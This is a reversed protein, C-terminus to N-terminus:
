FLIELRQSVSTRFAISHREADVTWDSVPLGDASIAAPTMPAAAHITWAVTEYPTIYSGQSRVTIILGQGTPRCVFRSVKYEGRRYDFGEGADEYLVSQGEAVFLRLELQSLTKAQDTHQILPWHPLVTGAKVFLPLYDLPADITITQGGQYFEGSWYNVWQQGQPLYLDRATQGAELIPAVLLSDGMMFQDDLAHAQPDDQFDLLMPRIIPAGTQSAQWFATYLAPLLRYRLEIAQRAIAEVQPGFSWPEQAPTGAATHIRYLPFLAAAQMWRAFLEASPVGFFGGIDPGVFPVGSLGLNLAMSLSLRLHDWNSENDGTWVSAYRQVGTYGARSLVFPRQKPRLASIGEQSARAMQMGYVNHIQAHDAGRGEYSHSVANPITGDGPGFVAPENMDNWFGSVGAELLVRYQEGWWIRAAPDTFDPFYCDGPWVPGRFVKGDPYKLFVDRRLGKEAIDNLRDAKLGPDIISVLRFGDQRLQKSMDAPDSFHSKHWTFGSKGQMYDIDLHIVDGPIQRERFQRAIEQVMQRTKYGWRSQHLGLSWLPPLPMHGSLDALRALVDKVAPGNIFYARLEGGAATLTYCNPQGHGLDFFSRHTTDLLLGFARNQHLAIFWPHGQYLPSQGRQYRGGPDTHWLEFLHGRLNLPYAQEGLGFVPAGSPLSRRLGVWNNQWGFGGGDMNLPQERVDLFDIQANQKHIRVTLAGTKFLLVEEQEILEVQHSPWDSDTKEISYSFPSKFVGQENLRVRVIHPSLATLQLCAAQCRVTLTTKKQQWSQVSGPQRLSEFPPPAPRPRNFTRIAQWWLRPGGRPKMPPAYKLEAYRKEVSYRISRLILALGISRLGFWAYKLNGILSPKSPM